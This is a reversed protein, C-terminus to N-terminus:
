TTGQASAEGGLQSSSLEDGEEGVGTGCETEGASQERGGAGEGGQGGRGGVSRGQVGERGRGLATVSWAACLQLGVVNYTTVEGGDEEVEKKVPHPRKTGTGPGVGPACSHPAGAAPM